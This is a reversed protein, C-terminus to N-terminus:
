KITVKEIGNPFVIGWAKRMRAEFEGGKLTTVEVPRLHKVITSEVKKFNEVGNIIGLSVYEAKVSKREITLEKISSVLVEDENLGYRYGRPTIKRGIELTKSADKWECMHISIRIVEKGENDKVKVFESYHSGVSKVAMTLEVWHAQVLEAYHAPLHKKFVKLHEKLDNHEDRYGKLTDNLISKANERASELNKKAIEEATPVKAGDKRAQAEDRSIAELMANANTSKSGVTANATAISNQKKM